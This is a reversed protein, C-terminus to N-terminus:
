NALCRNDQARGFINELEKENRRSEVLMIDILPAALKTAVDLNAGIQEPKNAIKWEAPTWVLVFTM